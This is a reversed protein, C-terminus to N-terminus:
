QEVGKCKDHAGSGDLVVGCHKCTPDFLEDARMLRAVDGTGVGGIVLPFCRPEALRVPQRTTIWIILALAIIAAILAVTATGSEMVIRFKEAKSVNM